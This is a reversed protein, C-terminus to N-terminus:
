AIGLLPDLGNDHDLEAMDDYGGVHHEGVFLQPVTELGSREIMEAWRGPEQQLDIEHYEVGKRHLLMKARQCYGCLPSTYLVIKSTASM